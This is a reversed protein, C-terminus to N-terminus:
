HRRKQNKTQNGRTRSQRLRRKKLPLGDRNNLATIWAPCTIDPDSGHQRKQLFM